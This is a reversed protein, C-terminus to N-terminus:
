AKANFPPRAVIVAMVKLAGQAKLAAVAEAVTSGTTYIDDVLLICKGKVGPSAAFAGKINEERQEPNLGWQPQTTRTRTLGDPRHSLGTRRAFTYSIEEAQNYGRTKLKENDLPIPVVEWPTRDPKQEVWTRAMMEGLVRGWAYAGEYKLQHMARELVGHYTGWAWVKLGGLGIM